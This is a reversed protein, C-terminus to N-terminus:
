LDELVAMMRRLRIRLMVAYVIMDDVEEEMWRELEAMPLTEFKQTGSGDDYQEAGVGLVRARCSTIAQTVEDALEQSTV